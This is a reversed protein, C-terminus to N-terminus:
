KKREGDIKAARENATALMHSLSIYKPGDLLGVVACGDSRTITVQVYAEGDSDVYTGVSIGADEHM